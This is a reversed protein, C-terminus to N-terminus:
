GSRMSCPGPTPPSGLLTTVGDVARQDASGNANHEIRLQAISRITEAVHDSGGIETM